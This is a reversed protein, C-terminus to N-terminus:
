DQVIGIVKHLIILLYSVIVIKILIPIFLRIMGICDMHISTMLSLREMLQTNDERKTINIQQGTAVGIFHPVSHKLDEEM